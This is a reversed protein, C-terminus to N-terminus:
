SLWFVSTTPSICSPLLLIRHRGPHPNHTSLVLQGPDLHPPYRDKYTTSVFILRIGSLWEGWRRKRSNGKDLADPWRAHASPTGDLDTFRRSSCLLTLHGGEINIRRCPHRGVAKGHGPYGRKMNLTLAPGTDRIEARGHDNM